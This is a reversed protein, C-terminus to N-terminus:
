ESVVVTVTLVSIILKIHHALSTFHHDRHTKRRRLKEELV